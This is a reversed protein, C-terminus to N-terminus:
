PTTCIGPGSPPKYSLDTVAECDKVVQFKSFTYNAAGGKVISQGDAKGQQCKDLNAYNIYKYSTCVPSPNDKTPTRLYSYVLLYQVDGTKACCAQTRYNVTQGTQSSCCSAPVNIFGDKCAVDASSNAGGDSEIRFQSYINCGYKESASPDNLAKKADDTLGQPANTPKLNEIEKGIDLNLIDPNIISFVITPSLVLILGFIANQLRSKAKENTSVSGTSRMFEIGSYMIMIVALVASVGILLRYIQNLFNPFSTPGQNLDRVGPLRTLPTFSSDNAGPAPKVEVPTGGAAYVSLPKSLITFASVASAMLLVSVATRRFTPHLTLFKM